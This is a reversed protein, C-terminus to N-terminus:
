AIRHQKYEHRHPRSGGCGESCRSPEDWRLSSAAATERLSEQRGNNGTRIVSSALAFVSLFLLNRM